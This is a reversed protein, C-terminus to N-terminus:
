HVTNLLINIFKCLKRLQSKSTCNLLEKFKVINPRTYYYRKIYLQRQDNFFPCKMLYHFEDGKDCLQCLQYKRESIDTGSWRGTEVPFHHNGTRFKLLKLYDNKKLDLLYSELNINEKFTSYMRGKNSENMATCWKQLHQDILTQKIITKFVKKSVQLNHQNIWFDFKGTENLIEKIKNIWKSQFENKECM